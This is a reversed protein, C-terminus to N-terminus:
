SGAVIALRFSSRVFGPQFGQRALAKMQLQSLSAITNTFAVITKAIQDHQPLESKLELIKSEGLQIQALLNM